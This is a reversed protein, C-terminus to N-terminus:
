VRYGVQTTVFVIKVVQIFLKWPCERSALWKEYPNLFYYALKRRLRDDEMTQEATMTAPKELPPPLMGIAQYPVASFSGLARSRRRALRSQKHSMRSASQIETGDDGTTSSDDSMRQAAASDLAGGALLGVSVSRGGGGRIIVDPSIHQDEAYERM